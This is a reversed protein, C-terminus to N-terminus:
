VSGVAAVGSDDHSLIRCNYSRDTDGQHDINQETLSSHFVHMIVRVASM